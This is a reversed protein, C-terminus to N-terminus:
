QHPRFWQLLSSVAAGIAAGIVGVASVAGSWYSQRQELKAVAAELRDVSVTLREVSAELKGFGRLQSEQWGFDNSM